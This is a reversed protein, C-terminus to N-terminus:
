FIHWIMKGVLGHLIEWVDLLQKHKSFLGEVKCKAWVQEETASQPAVHLM